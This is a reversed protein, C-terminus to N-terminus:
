WSPAATQLKLTRIARGLPPCRLASDPIAVSMISVRLGGYSLDASKTESFIVSGGYTYNFTVSVTDVKATLPINVTQDAEGFNVAVADSSAAEFYMNGVWSSSLSDSASGYSLVASTKTETYITSGGYTYNFTVDVTDTKATLPISVTKDTEGFNVAVTGSSAAAFYTNGAWSSSLSGSASGYSLVASTKTETYITSGGYTYNFTVDVTDTKATLPISVAKNTEGFNVTVTGSSAAEFYTNGAWSSSLSDSTSGYSLVASTKTETFITNGGYTYNFTVAVTDTKATLPISVTKDADGFTVTVTGSSAAAFYTNGAWSSSLSGTTSGYSLVASTKTETFITNGGYTYNFTVAVTDTKATLPINVTKNADGFNVTVSKNAAAFYTNGAWSSSVTASPSSYTLAASTKTETYITSGGYTYNFTVNVTMYRIIVGDALASANYWNTDGNDSMDHEDLTVGSKVKIETSGGVDANAYGGLKGDANSGGDARGGGYVEINNYDDDIVNGDIKIKTEGSVKADASGGKHHNGADGGEANGGGYVTGDIYGDNINVNTGAVNAQAKNSTDVADQGEAHGGGYVDGEVDGDNVNVTTSGTVNATNSNNTSDHGGGYVDGTTGGDVVVSTNGTVDGDNGGGYVDGVTAGEGITVSTNGTIDANKKGGYFPITAAM